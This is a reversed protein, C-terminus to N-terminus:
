PIHLVGENGNGYRYSTFTLTPHTSFDINRKVSPGLNNLTLGKNNRKKKKKSNPPRHIIDFGKM